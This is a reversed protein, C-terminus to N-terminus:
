AIAGPGIASQMRSCWDEMIVREGTFSAPGVMGGGGGDGDTIFSNGNSKSIMATFV